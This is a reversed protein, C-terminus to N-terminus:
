VGAATLRQVTYYEIPVDDVTAIVSGDVAERSLLAFLEAAAFRRREHSPLAVTVALTADDIEFGLEADEELNSRAIGLAHDLTSRNDFRFKGSYRVTSSQM